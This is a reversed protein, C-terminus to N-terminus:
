RVQSQLVAMSSYVSCCYHKNCRIMRHWSVDRHLPRRPSKSPAAFNCDIEEREYTQSLDPKLCNKRTQTTTACASTFIRPLSYTLLHPLFSHSLPHNLPSSYIPRTLSHTFSHSVSRAHAHIVSHIPARARKNQLFRTQSTLAPPDTDRTHRNDSRNTGAM